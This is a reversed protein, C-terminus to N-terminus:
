NGDRVNVYLRVSGRFCVLGCLLCWMDFGGGFRGGCRVVVDEVRLPVVVVGVGLGGM